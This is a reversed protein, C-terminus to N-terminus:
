EVLPLGNRTWDIIGHKLHFVEKFELRKFVSLSSYSRNGSRCYILYSKDKDLVELNEAFQSSSFNINVAGEIHGSQYEGPTRIDLIIFSKNNENKDILDAADLAGLHVVSENSSNAYGKCSFISIILLLLSSIKM